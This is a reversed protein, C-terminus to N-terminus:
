KDLRKIIFGLELAEAPHEHIWIHCPRCVSMFTSVDCLHKGRSKKHHLDVPVSYCNTSIRAECSPHEKFYEDRVKRYTKLKAKQHESVLKIKNNINKLHVKYIPKLQKNFATGSFTEKGTSNSSILAMNKDEIEKLGKQIILEKSACEKCMGPSDKTKAKWLYCQKKCLDCTKLKM